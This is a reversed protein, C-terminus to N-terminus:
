FSFGVSFVLDSNSRWKEQSAQGPITVGPARYYMLQLDVGIHVKKTAHFKFGTKVPFGIYSEKLYTDKAGTIAATDKNSEANIKSLGAGFNWDFYFIKNFTNIKGYFPSWIAMAGYTSNFNRTFPISKNLDGLAQYTSNTSNSYSNFNVEVAWEENLYYGSTINFLTSDFFVGSQNFGYGLNAYFTKKKKYVKQQLVYVKKDQDLWLFKYLDDEAAQSSKPSISALLIVLTLLSKMSLLNSSYSIVSKM